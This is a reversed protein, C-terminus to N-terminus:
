SIATTKPIADGAFGNFSVRRTAASLVGPPYFTGISTSLEGLMEPPSGQGAWGQQVREWNKGWHPLKPSVCQLYLQTSGGAFRVESM